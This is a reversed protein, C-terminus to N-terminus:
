APGADDGRGATAAAAAPEPPPAEAVPIVEFAGVPPASQRTRPRMLWITAHYAIFGLTAPVLVMLMDRDGDGGRVRFRAHLAPGTMFISWGLIVAFVKVRTEHGPPQGYIDHAELLGARRIMWRSLRRFAIAAVILLPVALLTYVLSPGPRQSQAIGTAEIGSLLWLMAFVIIAGVACRVTNANWRAWLRWGLWGLAVAAPLMFGFLMFVTIAGALGLLSGNHLADAVVPGAAALVYAAMAWCILAGLRRFVEFLLHSGKVM